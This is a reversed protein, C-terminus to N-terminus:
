IPLKSTKPILNLKEAEVQLKTKANDSRKIISAATEIEIGNKNCYEIVADMYDTGSDVIRDIEKLFSSSDIISNIKM